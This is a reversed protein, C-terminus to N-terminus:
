IQNQNWESVWPPTEVAPPTIKMATFFEQPSVSGGSKKLFRARVVAEAMCVSKRFFKQELLFAKEDWGVIRTEIRFADFLQLSKKFRITEAVVVPYWNKAAVKKALGARNMLDVRALDMLSLYVGNNMHRLVDLDTPLCRFPTSCPGMISVPSRFRSVFLTWFLRFFLNM